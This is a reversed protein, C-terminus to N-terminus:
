IYLNETDYRKDNIMVYGYVMGHLLVSQPIGLEILWPSIVTSTWPSVVYRDFAVTAHSVPYLVDEVEIIHWASPIHGSTVQLIIPLIDKLVKPFM